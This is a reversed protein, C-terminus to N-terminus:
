NASLFMMDMSATGTSCGKFKDYMDNRVNWPNLPCFQSNQSGYKTVFILDRMQEWWKEHSPEFFYPGIGDKHADADIVGWLDGKRNPTVYGIQHGCKRQGAFFGFLRYRIDCRDYKCLLRKFAPYKKTHDGDIFRVILLHKKQVNAHKKKLFKGHKEEWSIYPIKFASCMRIFEGCGNQGDNLPDDDVNDGIKHNYWLYKRFAEADKVSFLSNLAVEKIESPLYSSIFARVDDNGFCNWCFSAFWCVGSNKYFQPIGHSALLPHKFPIMEEELSDQYHLVCRKHNLCGKSDLFAYRRLLEVLSKGGNYIRLYRCPLNPDCLKWWSEKYVGDAGRPTSQKKRICSFKAINSCNTFTIHSLIKDNSPLTTWPEIIIETM